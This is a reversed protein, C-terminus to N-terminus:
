SPRAQHAAPQNHNRRQAWRDVLQQNDKKQESRSNVQQDPGTRNGMRKQPLLVRSPRAGSDPKLSVATSSGATDSGRQVTLLKDEREKNSMQPFLSGSSRLDLIKFIDESLTGSKEEVVEHIHSWRNIADAKAAMGTLPCNFTPLTQTRKRPSGTWDDVSTSHPEQLMNQPSCIETVPDPSDIDEEEEPSESLSADGMQSLCMVGFLSCLYINCTCINNKLDSPLFPPLFLSGNFLLWSCLSSLLVHKLGKMTKYDSYSM